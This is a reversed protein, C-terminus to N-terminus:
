LAGGCECCFQGGKSIEKKCNPCVILCEKKLRYYKEKREKAWKKDNLKDKKKERKIDKVEKWEHNGKTWDDKVDAWCWKHFSNNSYCHVVRVRRFLNVYGKCLYCRM